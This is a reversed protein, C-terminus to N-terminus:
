PACPSPPHSVVARMRDALPTPRGKQRGCDDHGRDDETQEGPPDVGEGEQRGRRHQGCGHEGQLARDGGAHHPDDDPFELHGGSAPSSEEGMGDLEDGDDGQRGQGGDEVPQHGAVPLLELVGALDGFGDLEGHEGRGGVADPRQGHGDPVLGGHPLGGDAAVQVGDM